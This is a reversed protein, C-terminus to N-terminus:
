QQKLRRELFEAVDQVFRQPKEEHPMHGCRQYVLLEACGQVAVFQKRKIAQNPGLIVISDQSTTVM